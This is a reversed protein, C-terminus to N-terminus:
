QVQVEIPSSFGSEEGSANVSTAAYYYTAGPTVSNDTYTTTADLSSNIKAYNNTSTGRYVNYGTVKSTSANWSLTVYPAAGSGSASEATGGNSANSAFSITSSASGSTEPAFVVDFNVSQGASITLPFSVGSISFETGSSNASSITVNGGTATLTSGMSQSSGMMVSGFSVSPTVSLQGGAAEGTGFLPIVMGGGGIMLNGGDVGNGQPTFTVKLIVSKGSALTYPLSPGSVSFGSGAVQFATLTETKSEENTVTVSLASSKGVAVQGFSLDAPQATMANSTVGAGAVALEVNGETKTTFTVRQGTWGTETPTFTLNVSVSQGAAIVAPLKLGTVSFESGSVSSSSITLSSTGPNTIVALQTEMQGVAVQGFRLQAPSFTLPQAAAYAKSSFAASFTLSLLTLVIGIRISRVFRRACPQISIQPFQM